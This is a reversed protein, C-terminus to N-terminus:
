KYADLIDQTDNYAKLVKDSGLRKAEEILKDWESLPREGVIMKSIEVLLYDYLPQRYERIVEMADGSFVLSPPSPISHGAFLDGAYKFKDDPRFYPDVGYFDPRIGCYNDDGIGYKERNSTDPSMDDASLPLKRIYKGDEVYEFTVGELGYGALVAGDYSYLLYDMAKMLTEPDKTAKSAASFSRFPASGFIVPTGGDPVFPLIHVIDFDPNIEKGPGTFMGARAVFDMLFFGESNIAKEEWQKTSVTMFETDLLKEAYCKAVFEILKKFMENEVVFEWDGTDRNYSFFQRGPVPVNWAPSMTYLISNLGSRALWPYSDPYIEKLQVLTDYFEDVTTPVPLGHKDLIDKRVMYCFTYYNAPDKESSWFRPLVLLEDKGSKFQVMDPVKEFINKLNPMSDIYDWINLLLNPGFRASNDLNCVFIDPVDNGSLVVSLREAYGSDPVLIPNFRINTRREFEDLVIYTDKWPFSPHEAIMINFVKTEKTIPLKIGGSGETAFQWEEETEKPSATTGAPTGKTTSATTGSTTGGGEGKCGTLLTFILVLSLLASFVIRLKKGM